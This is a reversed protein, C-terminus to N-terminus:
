PWYGSWFTACKRKNEFSSVMGYRVPQFKVSHINAKIQNKLFEEQKKQQQQKALNNYAVDTAWQVKHIKKKRSTPHELNKFSNSGRNKKSLTGIKNKTQKSLNWGATRLFNNYLFSTIRGM